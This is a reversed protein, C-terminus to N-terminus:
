EEDQSPQDGDQAQDDAQKGSGKSSKADAPSDSELTGARKKAFCDACMLGETSMPKFPVEGEKGCNACTIPHMERAGGSVHEHKRKKRCDQCRSPPNDFGKSAYFEQEGATWTFQAGCDRCVFQKDEYSM